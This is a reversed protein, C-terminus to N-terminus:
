VVNQGVLLSGKREFALPKLRENAAEYRTTAVKARRKAMDLEETLMRIKTRTERAIEKADLLQAELESMATAQANVDGRLGPSCFEWLQRYRQRRSALMTLVKRRMERRHSAREKELEAEANEAREALAEREKRM